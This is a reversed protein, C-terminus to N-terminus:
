HYDISDVLICSFKKHLKIALNKTRRKFDSMITEKKNEDGIADILIKINNNNTKKFYANAKEARIYIPALSPRNQCFFILKTKIEKDNFIFKKGNKYQTSSTCATIFMTMALLSPIMWKRM